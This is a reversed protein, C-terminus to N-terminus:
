ANPDFIFEVERFYEFLGTSSAPVPLPSAKQVAMEVSRDFASNGSSEVVVVRVVDGSPILRVLIKCKMGKQYSAPFVWNRTIESRIMGKYKAVELQEKKARKLDSAQKLRQQEEKEIQAQKQLRQEELKSLQNETEKQKREQAKRNKELEAIRKKETERKKKNALAEKKQKLRLARLKKEEKRRDKKAKTAKDALRKQESKKRKENKRLKDIEAKVKDENIAVAEIVKDEKIRSFNSDSSKFSVAIAIFMLIHIIIAWVLANPQDKITQWITM